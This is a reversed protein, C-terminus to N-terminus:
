NKGVLRKFFNKMPHLVDNKMWLFRRLQRAAKRETEDRDWGAADAVARGLRRTEDEVINIRKFMSMMKRRSRVGFKTRNVDVYAFRYPDNGKVLVNGPSFDRFLVGAKMLRVMEKGLASVMADRDPWKEWWRIERWGDLAECIYYSRMVRCGAMGREEAYALPAPTEFGLERLRMANRYSARAKPTSLLGYILGRFMGLKRFAKVCVKRGDPLTTVFLRNRGNYIYEADDPTEGRLLAAALERSEADIGELRNM